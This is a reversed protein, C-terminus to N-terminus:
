LHKRCPQCLLQHRRSCPKTGRLQLQWRRRCTNRCESYAIVGKVQCVTHVHMGGMQMAIAYEFFALEPKLNLHLHVFMNVEDHKALVETAAFYCGCEKAREVIATHESTTSDQIGPYKEIPRVFGEAVVSHGERFLDPLAGRYRVLIENALDTVVFEMETSNKLHQVSAVM